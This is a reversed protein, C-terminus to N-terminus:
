WGTIQKIEGWFSNTNKKAKEAEIAYKYALATSERDMQQQKEILIRESEAKTLPTTDINDRQSKYDNLNKYKPMREYDEETVPIVSEVYAQKLDSYNLDGSSGGFNHHSENLLTGGFSSSDYDSIGNYVIMSQLQKKQKEFASNMNSKSVNDFNAYIGENTKLWDGYGTQNPDDLRHKEFQNNFWQNFNGSDKLSKNTEMMNNLINHNSEDYYDDNNIKKKSSKNQFEYISYLRKYASSFFLFYKTELKSKDPHMKLVIQKSSRMSDEDLIRDCINFLKYLDDLSYHDLDLDLQNLSTNYFDVPKSLSSTMRINQNQNSYQNSNPITERIKIGIKPCSM